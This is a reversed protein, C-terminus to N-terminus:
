KFQVAVLRRGRASQVTLLVAPRGLKRADAVATRVDSPRTVQKSNVQTIIDGAVLGKRSADSDDAVEVVVVGREVGREPARLTRLELGLAKVTTPSAPEEPKPAPANSAQQAGPFTGLKVKITQDRAGRRVLIDVSTDPAYEAIKRALDRSDAIDDGNVKVIADGAQLGAKEAPGGGTVENILAGNADALGLSAAIDKDINQIRVGLWGRKVSGSTKLEEIVQQATAAPVAFAIGVNGGSPSYIATNVGVVEGQLNFTPGGSNGRNVAADIQIFDYPGSGIDRNVASLIGVTVTGGLGFPNGVAVVWDGVRGIESAFKVPKFKKDSEIKLLALDTRPDTGVLKAEYTEKPGFSVSINQAKDIVHNNTVVFGDESIVFGSGQAARRPARRRRDGQAGRGPLNRFFENLPHDPSLDPFPTRGGRRNNPARNNPARNRVTSRGGSSVNISVVSPKVQEVLDAFSFPANKGPQLQAAAPTAFALATACAIATLPM